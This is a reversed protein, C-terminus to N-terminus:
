YFSCSFSSLMSISMLLFPERRGLLARFIPEGSSDADIREELSRIRGADSGALDGELGAGTGGPARMRETLRQDDGGPQSPHLTLATRDLLDTRAVDHPKRRPQLVPM